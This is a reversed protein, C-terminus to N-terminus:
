RPTYYLAGDKGGCFVKEPTVAVTMLDTKQGCNEVTHRAGDDSFYVIIGDQGVAVGSTKDFMKVAYLSAKIGLDVETWKRGHSNSKAFYGDQGVMFGWDDQFDLSFALRSGEYRGTVFYVGKDISHFAKKMALLYIKEPPWVVVDVFGNGLHDQHKDWTKGYDRTQFVEGRTKAISNQDNAVVVANSDGFMGVGMLNYKMNLSIDKWTAGHDTSKMLLGKEGVLYGYQDAIQIDTIARKETKILKWTAGGDYSFFVEGASTVAWGKYQDHFFIKNITAKTPLDVKTFVAAGASSVVTLIVALAIFWKM